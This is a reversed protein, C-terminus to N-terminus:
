KFCPNDESNVSEIISPHPINFNGFVTRPVLLHTYVSAVRPCLEIKLLLIQPGINYKCPSPCIGQTRGRELDFLPSVSGDDFSICANRGSGLTLLMRIFNELLGFFKYAEVMYKHSISNFAKSQDIAVICAPINKSNCFGITEGLNILVEQLYRNSSFGKQSRSYILNCALKLRNNLARLLVKYICSLLSIPRWNTLRTTNGKKLILKILGTRFSPTLSGKQLAAALYRHLPTRFFNWYKKIFSNSLGDM